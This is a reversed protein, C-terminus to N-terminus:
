HEHASEQLERWRALQAQELPALQGRLRRQLGQISAMTHENYASEWIILAAEDVLALARRLADIEANDM